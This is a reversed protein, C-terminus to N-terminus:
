GTIATGMGQFVFLFRYVVCCCLTFLSVLSFSHLFVLGKKIADMFVPIDISNNWVFGNTKLLM